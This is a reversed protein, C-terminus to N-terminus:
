HAHEHLHQHASDAPRQRDRNLQAEEFKLCAQEAAEWNGARATEILRTFHQQETASMRGDGHRKAVARAVGELWEISEASCATRLSTILHLNEFEVAPPQSCGGAFLVPLGVLTLWFIARSWSESLPEM